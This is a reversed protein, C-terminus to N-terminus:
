NQTCTVSSFTKDNLIWKGNICKILISVNKEGTDEHIITDNEQVFQIVVKSGYKHKNLSCEYIAYMPCVIEEFYKLGSSNSWGYSTSNIPPESRPLNYEDVHPCCGSRDKPYQSKISKFCAFTSSLLFLFSFVIKFCLM